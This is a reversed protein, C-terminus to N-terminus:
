SVAHSKCRRRNHATVEHCQTTHYMGRITCQDVFLPAADSDATMVQSLGWCSTAVSFMRHEKYKGLTECSLKAENVM